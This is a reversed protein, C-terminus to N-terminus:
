IHPILSPTQVAPNVMAKIAQDFFDIVSRGQRRCTQIVTLLNATDQFREMSRSGGSVKRKTVALRLTREALNNDPPIEPHGLFYWWQHAKNLLSRLLKGAEGGAQALFSHIAEEVKARFESAWILFQAENHNQQFLAYNEFGEDILSIFKTGIEKNNLGPLTILKKFHRRLHAQCKQQAKVPYGNYASFDDSSLVGSYSSGLVTELEARSRTDAAHFLAFELNAFIWLWEKVGKVVWPTEDVHINPQTLKIWEQLSDISQGVASDIRENTAVLTGVGIEIKGLEWLLEQQKEYPLHGYNNIWGLFAQLRIGIDQGPVIEPSWDATQIEGCESCICTYRQYEVIEIPRDVLQAVQQTEIKIPENSFERQGCCECRQPRLIEFRDVRGFGKRTKGPHGPQGGPKRKATQSEQSTDERKNETKKLIDGSPPKSSTTSDLDRSVKLEEIERELERVRSKLQEIVKAQEVLMELLQEKALQKLTESDLKPLLDKEM